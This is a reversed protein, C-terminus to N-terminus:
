LTYFSDHVVTQDCNLLAFSVPSLLCDQAVAAVVDDVVVDVVLPAVYGHGAVICFLRLLILCQLLGQSM